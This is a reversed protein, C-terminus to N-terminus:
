QAQRPQALLLADVCQDLRDVLGGQGSRVTEYKAAIASLAKHLLELRANAVDIADTANKAAVRAAAQAKEAERIRENCYTEFGLRCPLKTKGEEYKFAALKALDGVKLAELKIRDRTLVAKKVVKAMQKIEKGAKKLPPKKPLVIPVCTKWAEFEGNEQCTPKHTGDGALTYNGDCVIFAWDGVIATENPGSSVFSVSSHAPTDFRECVRVCRKAESFSGNAQCVPNISGDGVALYGRDCMMQAHEGELFPITASGWGRLPADDIGFQQLWGGAGPFPDIPGFRVTSHAPAGFPDCVRRCTVHPTFSGDAQCWPTDSGPGVAAYNKHCTIRVDQPWSGGGAVEFNTIPGHGIHLRRNTPWVTAHQVDPHTGCTRYCHQAAEFTRNHFCKPKREGPGWHSYGMKCLVRVFEGARVRAAPLAFAHPPPQLVPCWPGDCALVPDYNGEPMCVSEGYRTGARTATGTGAIEYHEDCIVRVTNNALVISAPEVRGNTPPDLPACWPGM